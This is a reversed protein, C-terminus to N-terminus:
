QSLTLPTLKNSIVMTTVKSDLSEMYPGASNSYSNYGSYDPQANTMGSSSSTALSAANSGDQVTRTFLETHKVDYYNSNSFSGNEATIIWRRYYYIFRDYGENRKMRKLAVVRWKEAPFLTQASFLLLLNQGAAGIIQVM